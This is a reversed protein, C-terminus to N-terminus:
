PRSGKVTELAAYVDKAPRQSVSGGMAELAQELVSPDPDEIQAVVLSVGDELNRSIDELAVPWEDEHSRDGHGRFGEDPHPFVASVPGSLADVMIGVIGGKPEFYGDEDPTTRVDRGTREMVAAGSVRLRGDRDLQKLQGLAARAPGIDTFRVVVITDDM